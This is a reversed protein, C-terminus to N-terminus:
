SDLIESVVRALLTRSLIVPKETIKEVIKKMELTYGMCDLVIIDIDKDKLKYAAKEIEKIDGYPSGFVVEIDNIISSWKKKTYELQEVKPTINGISSNASFLPVLNKLVDYPFIIPLKSKFNYSFKGTCFFLILEAGAEELKNICEQIRPQVFREAFFVSSGDNLVSILGKEGNVPKGKEIDEKKLGDLAGVEILEIKDGLIPLIDKTIDKRPSQGITIAGVRRMTVGKWGFDPIEEYFWLDEKDM